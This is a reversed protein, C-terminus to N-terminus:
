RIRWKFKVKGYSLTKGLLQVISFLQQVHTVPKPAPQPVQTPFQVFKNVKIKNNNRKRKRRKKKNENYVPEM